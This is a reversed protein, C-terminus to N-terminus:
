PEPQRECHRWHNEVAVGDQEVHIAGEDVRARQDLAHPQSPRFPATHRRGGDKRDCVPAARELRHLDHGRLEGRRLFGRLEVRFLFLLRPLVPAFRSHGTRGREEVREWGCPPRDHCGSVRLDRATAYRADPQRHRPQEDSRGVNLDSLWIRFSVPPGRMCQADLGCSAHDHLVCRGAHLGTPRSTGSHDPHQRSIRLEVVAVRENLSRRSM